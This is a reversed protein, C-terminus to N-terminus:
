TTRRQGNCIRWLRLVPLLLMPLTGGAAAISATNERLGAARASDKSLYLAIMCGLLVGHREGNPLALVGSAARAMSECLREVAAEPTGYHGVYSHDGSARDEAQDAYSDLMTLAMALWPFYAAHTAVAEEHTVGESASAALLAHTTIWGSAAATCEFWQLDSEDPLHRTAWDRLETDRSAEDGRHNIVLVRSRQAERVLLPRVVDYGPLARCSDRCGAVLAALYGGDDRLRGAYHDSVTREADLADALSLYLPEGDDPGVAAGQETVTDLFDQLLEYRVLARLLDDNRVRPLTWFLAAGDAHGRKDNLASLADRRLTPDPIATARARWTRIEGSVARLGWRLQRATATLLASCQSRTLPLANPTHAARM